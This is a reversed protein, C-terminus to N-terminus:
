LIHHYCLTEQKIYCRKVVFRRRTHPKRIDFKSSYSSCFLKPNGNHDQKQQKNIPLFPSLKTISKQGGAEATLLVFIKHTDVAVTHM